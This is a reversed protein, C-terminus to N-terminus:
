LHEPDLRCGREVFDLLGISNEGLFKVRILIWIGLGLFHEEFGLLEYKGSTSGVLGESVLVFAPLEVVLPGPFTSGSTISKVLVREVLEIVLNVFILAPYIM